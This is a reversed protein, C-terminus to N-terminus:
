PEELLVCGSSRVQVVRIQAGGGRGAKFTSYSRQGEPPRAAVRRPYPAAPGLCRGQGRVPYSRGPAAGPRRCRPAGRPWRGQGGVHRLEERGKSRRRRRANQSAAGSRLSPYSRRAAAGPRPRPTARRPRRGQSGVHRLEERGKSRRRRKASQSAAGSRQYPTVGRQWLGEPM